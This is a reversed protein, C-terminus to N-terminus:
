TTPHTDSINTCHCRRFEFCQQKLMWLHGIRSDYADHALFFRGLQGPACYWGRKGKADM